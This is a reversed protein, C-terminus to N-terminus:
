KCFFSHFIIFYYFRVNETTSTISNSLKGLMEQFREEIEKAEGASPISPDVVVSKNNNNNQNVTSNSNNSNLNNTNNSKSNNTSSFLRNQIIMAQFNNQLKSKWLQSNSNLQLGNRKVPSSVFVRFVNRVSFM